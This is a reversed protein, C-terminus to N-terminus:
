DLDMASMYKYKITSWAKDHLCLYIASIRIFISHSPSLTIRGLCYYGARFDLMDLLATTWVGAGLSSISLIGLNYLSLNLARTTGCQFLSPLPVLAYATGSPSM